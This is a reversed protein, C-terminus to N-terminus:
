GKADRYSSFYSLNIHTRIRSQNVEVSDQGLEAKFRSFISQWKFFSLVCDLRESASTPFYTNIGAESNEQFLVCVCFSTKKRSASSLNHKGYENWLNDDMWPEM